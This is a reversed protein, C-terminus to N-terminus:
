FASKMCCLEFPKISLFLCVRKKKNFHIEKVTFSSKQYLKTVSSRSFAEPLWLFLSYDNMLLKVTCQLSSSGDKSIIGLCWYEAEFKPQLVTEASWSSRDNWRMSRTRLSNTFTSTNFHFAAKPDPTNALSWYKLKVAEWFSLALSLLLYITLCHPSYIYKWSWSLVNGDIVTTTHHSTLDGSKMCFSVSCQSRSPATKRGLTM